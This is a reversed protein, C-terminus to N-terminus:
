IKQIEPWNKIAFLENELPKEHEGGLVLITPYHYVIGFFVNRDSETHSKQAHAALFALNNIEAIKNLVYNFFFTRRTYGICEFKIKVEGWAIADTVTLWQNESLLWFDYIM